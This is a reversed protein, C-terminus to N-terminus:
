FAALRCREFACFLGNMIIMWEAERAIIPIDDVSKGSLWCLVEDSAVGAPM